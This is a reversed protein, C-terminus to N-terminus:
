GRNEKESLDTQVQEYAQTKKKGWLRKNEQPKYLRINEIM